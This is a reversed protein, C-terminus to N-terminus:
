RWCSATARPRRSTTASSRRPRPCCSTPGARPPRDVVARAGRDDGRAGLRAPLPQPGPPSPVSQRRGLLDAACGSLADAQRQLRIRRGPEGAHRRHARGSHLQPGSQAARAHHGVARAPVAIGPRRPQRFWIWIRHRAPRHRGADRGTRDADLVPQEGHEARQLSWCATLMTPLAACDRALAAITDPPIGTEAAAWDPTKAVGDTEGRVYAALQDFGVTCRDLFDRDVRGEAILVFAMALMLATDTGPRIPLWECAIDDAIDCRQPSINVLRVGAQAAHRLWHGMDHVAGGGNIMQGNRVAIGGFCLMLKAHQAIARWDVLPGAVSETGGVVHPLLTQAAGNSYSTLADTFGGTAALMRQMQTKAHHFRGASAWGYSGGFVSAAGHAERVRALEQAVLTVATDWDLPVFPENGRLTGGARDGNLWGKRVYPRDIRNAAHVADATGHIIPSPAPDRAFPRVDVIRGDRVVTDFAGWHAAHPTTENM